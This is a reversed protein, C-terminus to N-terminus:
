DTLDFKFDNPGGATVSAKLPSERVQGYKEPVSTKCIVSEAEIQHVRLKPMM